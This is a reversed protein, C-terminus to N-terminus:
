KVSDLVSQANDKTVKVYDCGIYYDNTKGEVFNIAADAASHSQAIHDNFVTGTMTGAIVDELADSLADVGVLYIDKGVTRGASTISQLAGLAMADNNCFVVEVDNGYQTLSNAVLTAAQEQQWNGVQDDLCNVEFGADTLAKVSYETRYQADINEPDGEIMVYDIKGNKNMDIADLGLDAIIEGQFTGSQKADAGVYCVSMNDTKWRSEEDADPERNIYVLPIGAETVMDTITAASSSNVPNVIMVDVGETIFNQIQNTQTAQDNAGDVIEINSETFGQSVLYSKLENRFLTMFNDSFQYICVGVKKDALDSNTATTAATSAAAAATSTAATATATSGSSCGVLMSATLAATAILSFVKKM